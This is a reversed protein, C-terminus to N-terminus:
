LQCQGEVGFGHGEVGFGNATQLSPELAKSELDNIASSALPLFAVQRTPVGSSSLRPSDPCGSVRCSNSFCATSNVPSPLSWHNSVSWAPSWEETMVPNPYICPVQGHHVPTTTPTNFKLGPHLDESLWTSNPWRLDTKM